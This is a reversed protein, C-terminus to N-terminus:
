RENGYLVSSIGFGICIHYKMRLLVKAILKIGNRDIRVSEKVISGINYLQQDYCVKLNTIM